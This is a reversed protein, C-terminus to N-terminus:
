EGVIWDIEVRSGPAAGGSTPDFRIAHITEDKWKPHEAVPIEYEHWEGDPVVPFSVRKDDNFSPEEATTWFLQGLPNCTPLKMRVNVKKYTNRPIWLLRHCFSPDDGTFTMQLVGSKVRPDKMSQLAGWGQFDRDFQFEISTVPEPREPYEFATAIRLLQGEGPALDFTAQQDSLAVPHESGDTARIEAISKVHPLFTLPVEVAETRNGNVVMVYDVGKENRFFGIVLPMETPASVLADTGLRRCGAPIEGTHFVGTSTLGLLTRGLVKMEGNLRQVIPYLRTPKGESDVIGVRGKQERSKESWYTFWVIGKMGYALSTYVQWRMEAVTPTWNAILSLSQVINWPPVGYRIGYERILSLNEFYDPRDTGDRKLCYHDYSLVRPEVISLYKDLHDAYTPTGLQKTSAYTPFLNVYPLHHPDHQLFEANIQGLAKFDRYNPEDKLHYGYLASDDRYDAVIGAIRDQWGERDTMRPDIRGDVVIAKINLKQCFSLMLRNQELSYGSRPGCFTFNCDRVTRWTDLTNSTAPPGYWYSVPFEDPQWPRQAEATVAPVCLALMALAGTPARKGLWRTM